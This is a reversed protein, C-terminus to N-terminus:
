EAPWEWTNRTHESEWAKVSPKAETQSTEILEELVLDPKM